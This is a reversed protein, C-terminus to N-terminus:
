EKLASIISEKIIEYKDKSINVGNRGQPHLTIIKEEMTTESVTNRPNYDYTIM